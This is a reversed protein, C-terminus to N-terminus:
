WRRIDRTRTFARCTAASRTMSTGYASAASSRYRVRLLECTPISGASCKPGVAVLRHDRGNTATTGPIARDMVLVAADLRASPADDYRPNLLVAQPVYEVGDRVVTVATVEGAIDLVCHAATIVLRTDTIPTGSCVSSGRVRVIVEAVDGDLVHPQSLEALSEVGATGRELADTVTPATAPGLATVAILVMRLTVGTSHRRTVRM